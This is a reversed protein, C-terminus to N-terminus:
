ECVTNREAPVVSLVEAFTTKGAAIKAAGSLRLPRMGARVAANRLVETQLGPKVLTNLAESLTLIEYIGARGRFGTHRCEVCGVAAQMM